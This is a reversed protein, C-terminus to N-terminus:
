DSRRGCRRAPPRSIGPRKAAPQRGHDAGAPRHRREPRRLLVAPAVASRFRASAASQHRRGPFLGPRRGPRDLTAHVDFRAHQGPIFRGAGRLPPIGAPSNRNSRLARRSSDLGFTRYRRSYPSLDKALHGALATAAAVSLPAPPTGMPDAHQPDLEIALLGAYHRLESAAIHTTVM